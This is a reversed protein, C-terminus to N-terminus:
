SNFLNDKWARWEDKLEPISDLQETTNWMKFQIVDKFRPHLFPSAWPNNSLDRFMDGVASPNPVAAAPGPNIWMWFQPRCVKAEPKDLHLGLNQTFLFSLIAVYPKDNFPGAWFMHFIRPYNPDCATKIDVHPTPPIPKSLNTLPAELVERSWLGADSGGQKIMKKQKITLPKRKPIPERSSLPAERFIYNWHETNGRRTHRGNDLGAGVRLVELCDRVYKNTDFACHEYLMDLDAVSGPPVRPPYALNPGQVTINFYERASGVGITSPGQHRAASTSQALPSSRQDKLPPVAPNFPQVAMRIEYPIPRISPYHGSDIEWQWIRRLDERGYVLTPEEGDDDGNWKSGHEWKRIGLLLFWGLTFLLSWVLWSAKKRGLKVVAYSWVAPPIPLPVTIPRRLGPLPVSFHTVFRSALRSNRTTSLHQVEEIGNGYRKLPDPDFGHRIDM